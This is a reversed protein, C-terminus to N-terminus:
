FGRIPQSEQRLESTKEALTIFRGHSVLMLMVQLWILVLGAIALMIVLGMGGYGWSESAIMLGYFRWLMFTYAIMFPTAIMIGIKSVDNLAAGLTHAGMLHNIQVVRSKVDFALYVLILWLAGTLFADVIYGNQM